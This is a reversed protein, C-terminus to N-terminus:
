LSHYRMPMSCKKIGFRDIWRGLAPLFFVGALAGIMGLLALNDAKQDLLDILVWPAYVFMIQKQVGFVVTLLYYFKYQKRFVIKLRRGNKIRDPRDTQRDLIGLLILTVLLFLIAVVFIHKVPTTFSFLGARFGTFVAFAALLSFATGIGKFRGILRGASNNDRILSMGISDQLPYWLHGGLSNIFLFVLMVSFQPTFFGLFVLGVIAMAQAAMAVRINGFGILFSLLFVVLVGPLERPFEILGRQLATVQYADKFYNSYVSDSLGAALAACAVIAMYLRVSRKHRQEESQM